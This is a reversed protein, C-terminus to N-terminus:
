RCYSRRRRSLPQPGRPKLSSLSSIIRRTTRKSSGDNNKLVADARATLTRLRPPKRDTSDTVRPTTPRCRRAGTGPADTRDARRDDDQTARRRRARSAGANRSALLEAQDSGRDAAGVSGDGCGVVVHPARGDSVAARTARRTVRGSSCRIPRMPFAREFATEILAIAGAELFGATASTTTPPGGFCTVAAGKSVLRALRKRARNWDILFVLRSGVFRLFREIDTAADAVYKGVTMVIPGRESTSTSTWTLTYADLLGQLFRLRSRHVDTYAITVVREDVHIVIVHKPTSGLDNQISLRVDDRAATTNLGPHTFKLGSTEHIGAMFARVLVRDADTM